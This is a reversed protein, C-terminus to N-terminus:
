SLLIRMTGSNDYHGTKYVRQLRLADSFLPINEANLLGRRWAFPIIATVAGSSVVSIYEANVPVADHVVGLLIDEDLLGNFADNHLNMSVSDLVSMSVALPTDNRIGGLRNFEKNKSGRQMLTMGAASDFIMTGAPIVQGAIHEYNSGGHDGGATPNYLRVTSYVAQIPSQDIVADSYKIFDGM